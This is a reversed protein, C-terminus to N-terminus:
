RFSDFLISATENIGGGDVVSGSFIRRVDNEDPSRDHPDM